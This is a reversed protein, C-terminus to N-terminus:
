SFREDRSEVSNKRTILGEPKEEKGRGGLGWLAVKKAITM